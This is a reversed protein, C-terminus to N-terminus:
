VGLGSARRRLAAERAAQQDLQQQTGFNQQEQTLQALSRDRGSLLEALRQEFETNYDGVANAYLGSKLLGRGAWDSELNHLDTTKQQGMARNSQDYQTNIDGQRRTVDANFGSLALGLQRLQDQYGTDSGLWANPDTNMPGPAARPPASPRSYKGSPGSSITSPQKKKAIQQQQRVPGTPPAPPEYRAMAAQRNAIANYGGYDGALMM